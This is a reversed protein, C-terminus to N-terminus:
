VKTASSLIVEIIQNESTSKRPTQVKWGEIPHLTACSPGGNKATGPLRAQITSKPDAAVQHILDWTIGSLPIKIRGDFSANLQGAYKGIDVYIFRGTAPGQTLHGVFNPLGDERNEKVTVKCDFGLDQGTSRQKQITQYDNGKGYQLGYDLGSPPAVLVVQLSVQYEM